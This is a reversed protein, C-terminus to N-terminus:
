SSTANSREAIEMRRVSRAKVVGSKLGIYVQSTRSVLGLYIGKGWRDAIRCPQKEALLYMVQESFPPPARAYARRPSRQHPTSGDLGRRAINIVTAAYSVLWLLITSHPQLTVNHLAEAAFRLVRCQANVDRVAGEALGNSASDGDPTEELVIDFGHRDRGLRAAQTKLEINAPENGSRLALRTVGLQLMM